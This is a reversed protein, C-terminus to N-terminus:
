IGLPGFIGQPKIDMPTWEGVIVQKPMGSQSDAPEKKTKPGASFKLRSAGTKSVRHVRGAAELRRVIMKTSSRTSKIHNMIESISAGHHCELYAVVQDRMSIDNKPVVPFFLNPTQYTM